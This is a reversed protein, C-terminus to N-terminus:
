GNWNGQVRVTCRQQRMVAGEQVNSTPRPADVPTVEVETYRDVTLDHQLLRSWAAAAVGVVNQTGGNYNNITHDRDVVTMDFQADIRAKTADFPVTATACIVILYPFDDGKGSLDPGSNIGPYVRQDVGAYGNVSKDGTVAPDALLTQVIAVVIPQTDADLRRDYPQAIM